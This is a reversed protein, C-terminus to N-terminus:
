GAIDLEAKVEVILPFLELFVMDTEVEQCSSVQMLLWGVLVGGLDM